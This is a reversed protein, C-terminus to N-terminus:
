QLCQLYQVNGLLIKCYILFIISFIIAHNFFYIRSIIYLEAQIILALKELHYLINRRRPTYEAIMEDSKLKLNYKMEKSYFWYAELRMPVIELKKYERYEVRNNKQNNM